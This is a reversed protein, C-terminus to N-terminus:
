SFTQFGSSALRAGYGGAVYLRDGVQTFETNTSTLESLMQLSVTSDTDLSRSWSQKTVPDVVWVDHNQSSPPFNTSGGSSTFGHLGNTRGALMIWKGDYMGSAFSHLTPLNAAGFDYTALSIQYPLAGGIEIPDATATQNDARAARSAVVVFLVIWFSHGRMLAEESQEDPIDFAGLVFNNRYESKIQSAMWHLAHGGLQPCHFVRGSRRFTHLSRAMFAYFGSDDRCRRTELCRRAHYATTGRKGALRFLLAGDM